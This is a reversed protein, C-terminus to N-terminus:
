SFRRSEQSIKGKLVALIRKYAPTAINLKEGLKVVYGTLTDAETKGGRKFDDHMSSTTEYPLALIKELMTEVINEALPISNAIAVSHLETLLEIILRKREPNGTISGIPSDFYSTLTAIVSIFFFKEWITRTINDPIYANIGASTLIKNVFALEEKTANGSGFLLKNITGQQKITGPSVLRSIIYICGEWIGAEPLIKRMRETTDVGNLIPLIITSSSVCSQISFISKELDYSKVCCLLLDVSGLPKPNDTVVSPHVIHKGEPTILTLGHSAITRGHEGRAIFAIEIDSSTAYHGALKGGLYGGVGGVGLVAIRYKSSM